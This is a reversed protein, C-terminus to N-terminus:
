TARRQYFGSLYIKIVPSIWMGSVVFFGVLRFQPNRFPGPRSINIVAPSSTIV